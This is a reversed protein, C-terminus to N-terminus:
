TGDIFAGESTRNFVLQSVVTWDIGSMQVIRERAEQEGAGVVVSFVLAM